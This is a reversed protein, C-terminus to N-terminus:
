KRLRKQGALNHPDFVVLFHKRTICAGQSVGHIFDASYSDVLINVKLTQFDDNSKLLNRLILTVSAPPLRNETCLEEVTPPWSLPPLSRCYEQIDERLYSAM